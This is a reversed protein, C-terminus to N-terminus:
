KRKLNVDTPKPKEGEKTPTGPVGAATTRASQEAEKIEQESQAPHISATQEEPKPETKEGEAPQETKPPTEDKYEGVEGGAAKVVREYVSKPLSLLNPTGGVQNGMDPQTAVWGDWASQTDQNWEGNAEGDYLGDEKMVTQVAKNVQTGDKYWQTDAM